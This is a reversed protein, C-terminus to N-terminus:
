RSGYNIEKMLSILYNTMFNEKINTYPLKQCYKTTFNYVILYKENNDQLYNKFSIYLIAKLFLKYDFKNYTEKYNLKNGYALIQSKPKNFLDSLFMKTFEFLKHVQELDLNQLQGPTTCIRYVLEDDINTIQKLQEVTYETFYYKFCRNLITPLVILESDTILIFHMNKSPEEILKLFQNQQKESILNLDILYFADLTSQSYESLLEDSIDKTIEILECEFHKALENSLLHKGCGKEGIFLITKPLTFLSYSMLKNILTEQGIM